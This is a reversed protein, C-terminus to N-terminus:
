DDHDGDGGVWFESYFCFMLLFLTTLMRESSSTISMFQDVLGHDVDDMDDDDFNQLSSGM